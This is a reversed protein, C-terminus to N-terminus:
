APDTNYRNMAAEFGDALIAEVADAAVAVAVDLSDRDAKGPRRLVHDAGAQRGPPKGIGIRVRAYDPSHLHA